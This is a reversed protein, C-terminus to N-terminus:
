RAGRRRAVFQGKFEHVGSRLVFTGTMSHEAVSGEHRWDSTYVNFSIFENFTYGNTIPFSELPVTFRGRQDGCTLAGASTRGSFAGARPIKTISLTVGSMECVVAPNNDDSIKSATYSWEGSIEQFVVGTPIGTDVEPSCGALLAALFCVAGISSRKIVIESLRGCSQDRRPSALLARWCSPFHAPDHVINM